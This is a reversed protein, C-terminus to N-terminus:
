GVIPFLVPSQRQWFDKHKTYLIQNNQFKVDILEAGHSDIEIFIKENQLSYKM